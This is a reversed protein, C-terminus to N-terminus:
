RVQIFVNFCGYVYPLEVCFAAAKCESLSIDCYIM